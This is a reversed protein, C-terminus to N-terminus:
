QLALHEGCHGIYIIVHPGGEAEREQRAFVHIRTLPGPKAHMDFLQKESDGPILFKRQERVSPKKLTQAKEQSMEIGSTHRYREAAVERPEGEDLARAYSDLSRIADFLNEPKCDLNWRKASSIASDLVRVRETHLAAETLISLTTRAAQLSLAAEADRAEADTRLNVLEVALPERFARYLPEVLHPTPGYSLIWSPRGFSLGHHAAKLLMEILWPPTQSCSPTTDTPCPGEDVDLADVFPGSLLQLLLDLANGWSLDRRRRNAWQIFPQGAAVEAAGLDPHVYLIADERRVRRARQVTDAVEVVPRRTARRAEEDGEDARHALGDLFAHNLLLAPKM